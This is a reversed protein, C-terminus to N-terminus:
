LSLQVYEEFNHFYRVMYQFTKYHVRSILKFSPWVWICGSLCKLIASDARQLALYRENVMIDVVCLM